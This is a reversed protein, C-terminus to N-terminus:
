VRVREPRAGPRTVRRIVWKGAEISPQEVWQYFLGCFLCVLGGAGLTLAYLKLPHFYVHPFAGHLLDPVLDLLPQHLLYVGYSVLGIRRLLEFGVGPRSFHGEPRELWSAIWKVAVLSIFLFSYSFLPKFFFSALMPLVLVLAPIKSLFLPRGYIWDDALRAGAAWSFWYFVPLPRLLVPPNFDWLFEVTRLGTELVAAVCLAGRWGLRRSMLLLLPYILYLQFETAISWFSGNIAYAWAPQFNHVLFAHSLFQGVGAGAGGAGAEGALRDHPLFVWFLCLALLYPPYIRFFRRIFFVRWSKQASREHSLHICFGSVAFFVAVGAWAFSCPLLPLFSKPVGGFDRFWGTWGLSNVGFAPNLSHFVLVLLLAVARIHDLFAIRDSAPKAATTM